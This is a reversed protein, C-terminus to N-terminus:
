SFIKKVNSFDMKVYKKPNLKRHKLEILALKVHTSGKPLTFGALGSLYDLQKLGTSRALISAAAVEVYKSEAREVRVDGVSCGPYKDVVHKGPKLDNACKQHLKDLWQTTKNSHINYEEPFISKVTCLAIRKIKEAMVLIEKDSLTKSDAVGLELLQKRMEDNAKVAAVVLGGFSDGKLTEDSGIINGQEKRFVEKKVKKGIGLKSIEKAIQDVLEKKGQLLLKGSTYLILSVNNKTLRLEEYITKPENESYGKLKGVDEKEVDTFVVM